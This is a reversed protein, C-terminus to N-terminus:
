QEVENIIHYRNFLVIYSSFPSLTHSITCVLLKLKFVFKLVVMNLENWKVWSQTNSLQIFLYPALAYKLTCTYEAFFVNTNNSIKPNLSNAIMISYFITSIKNFPKKKENTCVVCICKTTLVYELFVYMFVYSFMYIYIYSISIHLFPLQIKLLMAAYTYLVCM